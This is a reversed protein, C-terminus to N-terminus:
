GVPAWMFGYSGLRYAIRIETVNQLQVLTKSNGANNGNTFGGGHIYYVIPAKYGSDLNRKDFNINVYLCDEGSDTDAEPDWSQNPCFPKQVLADITATSRGSKM